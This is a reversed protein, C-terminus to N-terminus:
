NLEQSVNTSKKVFLAIWVVRSLRYNVPSLLLVVAIMIPILYYSFWNDFFLVGCAVFVSVCEAVTLGYSVYMAGYFFGPEKDFSYKCVECSENMKAYSFFHHKKYVHGKSCNPCKCKLISVLSAM